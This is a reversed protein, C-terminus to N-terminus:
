KLLDRLRDPYDTIIGDVGLSVMREMDEVENVTWVNVRYGKRRAWTVHPEDVMQFFPHLVDPKVLHRFWVRRFILPQEPAYLLATQIRSDYRKVRRVSFPNFSSVLVREQLSYQQILDVVDQEMGTSSLTFAKIEVNIAIRDGLVDFAEDLTLIREGKFRDDFWSGADFSRLEKLTHSVVKGEGDTTEDLTVDHFVVLAGDSSYQVDLEVGDAGLEVAKELASRTNQPAM